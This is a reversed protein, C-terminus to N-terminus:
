GAEYVRVAVGPLGAQAAHAGVDREGGVQFQDEAGDPGAVLRVVDMGAGEGAREFTEVGADGGDDVPVVDLVRGVVGRRREVREFSGPDPGNETVAACM